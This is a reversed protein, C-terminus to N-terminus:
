TKTLSLTDTIGDVTIHCAYKSELRLQLIPKLLHLPIRQIRSEPIPSLFTFQCATFSFYRDRDRKHMHARFKSLIIDKKSIWHKAELRDLMDDEQIPLLLNKLWDIAARLIWFATQDLCLEYRIAYGSICALLSLLRKYFYLQSAEHQELYDPYLCGIYGTAVAALNGKLSILQPSSKYSALASKVSSRLKACESDFWPKRRTSSTRTFVPKMMQCKDAAKIIASYLNDCLKNTNTPPFDGKVQPSWAKLHKFQYKKEAAWKLKFQTFSANTDVPNVSNSTPSFVEITVWILDVVSNSNKNTFTLQIPLDSRSRGNIFTFGLSELGESLSKGRHNIILDHSTRCHHLPTGSTLEKDSSGLNGVRANFDDTIILLDYHHTNNLDNIFAQMDNLQGNKDLNPHFYASIIIFVLGHKNIKSAICSNCIHLTAVKM